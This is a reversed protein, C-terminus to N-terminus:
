DHVLEVSLEGIDRAAFCFSAFAINVRLFGIVESRDSQTGTQTDIDTHADTETEVGIQRDTRKGTRHKHFCYM